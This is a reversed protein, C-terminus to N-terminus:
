KYTDEEAEYVSSRSQAGTGSLAQVSSEVAQGRVHGVTDGAAACSTSSSMMSRSSPVGQAAASWDDDGSVHVEEVREDSSREASSIHCATSSRVSQTLPYHTTVVM